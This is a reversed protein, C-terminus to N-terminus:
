PLAAVGIGRMVEALNFTASREVIRGDVVRDIGVAPWACFRMTPAFGLWPGTHTGYVTVLSVVMDGEAVQLEVVDRVDPWGAHFARAWQKVGNPGKLGFQPWTFDPAFIEDAVDYAKENVVELFMRAVLTKNAALRADDSHDRRRAAASLIREYAALLTDNSHQTM